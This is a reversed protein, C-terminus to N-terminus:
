EITRICPTEEELRASARVFANNNDNHHLPSTKVVIRFHFYGSRVPNDFNRAAAVISAFPFLAALSIRM